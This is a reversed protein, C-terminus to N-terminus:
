RGPRLSALTPVGVAFFVDVEHGAPGHVVQAVARRHHHIGDRLLGSRKHLGGVLKVGQGLSSM